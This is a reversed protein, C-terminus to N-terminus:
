EVAYVGWRISRATLTIPNIGAGIGLLKRDLNTM